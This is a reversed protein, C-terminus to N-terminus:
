PTDSTFSEIATPATNQHGKTVWGREASKHCLVCLSLDFRSFVHSIICFLALPSAIGYNCRFPFYNHLVMHYPCAESYCIDMGRTSLERFLTAPGELLAMALSAKSLTRSVAQHLVNPRQYNQKYGLFHLSSHPLSVARVFSRPLIPASSLNNIAEAWRLGSGVTVM